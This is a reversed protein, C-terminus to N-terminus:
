RGKRRGESFNADILCSIGFGIVAGAAAGIKRGKEPNGLAKGVVEGIVLGATTGIGSSVMKDGAKDLINDERRIREERYGKGDLYGGRGIM